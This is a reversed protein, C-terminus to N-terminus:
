IQIILKNVLAIVVVILVILKEIKKIRERMKIKEYTEKDIIIELEKNGEM